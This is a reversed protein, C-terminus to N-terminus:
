TVMLNHKLDAVVEGRVPLARELPPELAQIRRCPCFDGHRNGPKLLAVERIHLRYALPHQFISDIEPRAVPHIEPAVALHQHDQQGAAGLLALLAVDFGRDLKPRIVAAALAARPLLLRLIGSVRLKLSRTCRCTAASGAKASASSRSPTSMMSAPSM